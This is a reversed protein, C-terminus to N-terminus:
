TQTRIRRIPSPPTPGERARTLRHDARTRRAPEPRHRAVRRRGDRNRAALARERIWGVLTPVAEEELDHAAVSEIYRERLHEGRGKREEDGPAELILRHAQPQPRGGDSTRAENWLTLVDDIDGRQGDGSRANARRQQRRRDTRTIACRSPPARTAM